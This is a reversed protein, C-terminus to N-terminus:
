TVIYRRVSEKGPSFELNLRGRAVLNALMDGFVTHEYSSTFLWRERSFLTETLVVQGPKQVRLRPLIEALFEEMTIIPKIKPKM